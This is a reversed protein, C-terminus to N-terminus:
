EDDDDDEEGTDYHTCTRGEMDLVAETCQGYRNYICDDADCFVGMGFSM